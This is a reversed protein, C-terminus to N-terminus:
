PAVLFGLYHPRDIMRVGAARQRGAIEAHFQPLQTWHLRPRFHHEAHYGNNFWLLNYLRHYSSVGWAIPTDPDARYHEYYGNLASLCRGIYYFPLLLAVAQWNYLAALGYFSAIAALEFAAQRGEGPSHIALARCAALPRDRLMAKLAYGWASEAQGDRGHRYISIPDRTTGDPGPRDMNGLHHRAHAFAYLQQSSGALLSLMTSFCRNLTAGRFYRTHIFNHALGNVSWSLAYAYALGCPIVAWWPLRDAALLWALLLAFHVAGAVVAIGDVAAYALLGNRSKGIIAQM